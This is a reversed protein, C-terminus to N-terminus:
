AANALRTDKAGWDFLLNRGHEQNVLGESLRLQHPGEMAVTNAVRM